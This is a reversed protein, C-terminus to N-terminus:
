TGNKKLFEWSFFQSDLFLRGLFYWESVRWIVNKRVSIAQLISPHKMDPKQEVYVYIWLGMKNEVPIM